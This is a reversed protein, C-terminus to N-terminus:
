SHKLSISKPKNVFLGSIGSTPVNIFRPHIYHNEWDVLILIEKFVNDKIQVCDADNKDSELIGNEGKFRFTFPVKGILINESSSKNIIKRKNFDIIVKEDFYNIIVQNFFNGNSYNQTHASISINKYSFLNWWKTLKPLEYIQGSFTTIYPDSGAGPGGGGGGGGGLPLPNNSNVTYNPSDSYTAISYNETMITNKPLYANASLLESVTSYSSVDPEVGGIEINAILYFAPMQAILFLIKFKNSITYILSNSSIPINNPLSNFDNIRLYTYSGATIYEYSAM